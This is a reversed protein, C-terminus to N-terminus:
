ASGLSRNCGMRYCSLPRRIRADKLRQELHIISGYLQISLFDIDPCNEAIYEVEARGIGALMTTVVHNGDVEKIMRAIDNVADWVKKNTYGLNLENGVGWGLLAPHDKLEIVEKRIRELQEAVAAEDDYDFGHREKGVYIGMLVMLGNEWAMDLMDIGSLNGNGTSWTRFSNGGHLAIQYCPGQQCGAGQVYFEEDNVFLRYRGDINRMEVVSPGAERPDTVPKEGVGCSFLMIAM